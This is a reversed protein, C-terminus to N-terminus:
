GRRQFDPNKVKLWNRCPGSSYVGGLHPMDGREKSSLHRGIIDPATGVISRVSASSAATVAAIRRTMASSRYGWAGRRSGSRAANALSSAADRPSVAGFSAAARFFLLSVLPPFAVAAGFSAGGGALASLRTRRYVRSAAPRLTIVTVAYARSAAYLAASLNADRESSAM